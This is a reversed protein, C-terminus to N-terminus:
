AQSPPASRRLSEGSLELRHANHVLRDLIAHAAPLKSEGPGFFSEAEAVKLTLPLGAM